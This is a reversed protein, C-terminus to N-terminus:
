GDETARAGPCAVSLDTSGPRLWPCFHCDTTTAPILAWREPHAEVDLASVAVLVNEVNQMADLAIQRDYRLRITHAGYKGRLLGGRSMFVDAVENVTYGANEMGLGYANLQVVYQHDLIDKRYDRMAETGKFKWDLVTGTDTDFCDCSGKLNGGVTVEYEVLFRERGIHKNWARFYQAFMLHAGTGVTAPLVDFGETAKHWDLLKYAIQRNCPHGIESPGIASQLSREVNRAGYEVIEQVMATIREAPTQALRMAFPDAAAVPNPETPPVTPATTHTPESVVGHPETPTALGTTPTVPAGGFVDAPAAPDTCTIHVVRGANVLFDAM